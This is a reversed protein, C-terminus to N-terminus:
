MVRNYVELSDGSIASSADSLLFAIIDAVQAAQVWKSFDANPMERRNAPTDIISPMIGNVRINSERLELAMSEMIRQAAAKSATYAGMNKGGRLGAKALVCVISGAIGKEVMHRAVRGGIVYTLQANLYMMKEFVSLPSTHVPEGSAFGGAIHAMGDITGFEKEAATVVTDAEEPKGLDGALLLYHGSLGTDKLMSELYETKTDVLALNAGEAAFKQVVARGVNGAAGTILITKGTFQGAM